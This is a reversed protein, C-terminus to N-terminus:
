EAQPAKVEVLAHTFIVNSLPVIIYKGKQELVLGDATLWMNAKRSKNDTKASMQSEPVNDVNNIPQHFRAHDVPIGSEILKSLNQNM